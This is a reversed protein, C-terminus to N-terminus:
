PNDIAGKAQFFTGILGTEVDARRIHVPQLFIANAHGILTTQFAAGAANAAGMQIDLPPKGFSTM